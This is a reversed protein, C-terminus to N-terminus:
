ISDVSSDLQRRQMLKHLLTSGVSLLVGYIVLDALIFQHLLNASAGTALQLLSRDHGFTLEFLIAGKPLLLWTERGELGGQERPLPFWVTPGVVRLAVLLVLGITLVEALGEPPPWWPRGTNVDVSAAALAFFVMASVQRGPAVLHRLQRGEGDHLSLVVGAALGFPLAYLGFRDILIAAVAFCSLLGIVASTRRQLINLRWLVEATVVGGALSLWLSATFAIALPPLTGVFAFVLCVLSLLVLSVASGLLSAVIADDSDSLTSLAFPGWLCIVVGFLLAMPGPLELVLLIAIAAAACTLLTSLSIVGPLRWNMPRRDPTRRLGVQLGLWIASILFVLHLTPSATPRVAELGSVGLAIGAALWGVLAPLGVFKTVHEFAFALLMLTGLAWAATTTNQATPALLALGLLVSCLALIRM